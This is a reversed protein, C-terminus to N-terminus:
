DLRPDGGGGVVPSTCCSGATRRCWPARRWPVHRSQRCQRPHSTHSRITERVYTCGKGRGARVCVCVCLDRHVGDAVAGARLGVLLREEALDAGGHVLDRLHTCARTHLIQRHTPQKTQTERARVQRSRDSRCTGASRRKMLKSSTSLVMHPKLLSSKTVM